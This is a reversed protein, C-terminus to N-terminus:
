LQWLELKGPLYDMNRNKEGFRIACDRCVNDPKLTVQDLVQAHMVTLSQSVRLLSVESFSVHDVKGLMGGLGMFIIDSQLDGGWIM